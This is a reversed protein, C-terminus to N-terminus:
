TGCTCNADFQCSLVLIRRVITQAVIFFKDPVLNPPYIGGFVLFYRFINFNLTLWPVLGNKFM